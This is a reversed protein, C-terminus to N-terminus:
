QQLCEGSRGFRISRCECYEAGVARERVHRPLHPLLMRPVQDMLSRPAPGGSSEFRTWYSVFQERQEFAEKQFRWFASAASTETEVALGSALGSLLAPPLIDHFARGAWQDDVQNASSALRELPPAAARVHPALAAHLPFIGQVCTVAQCALGYLRLALETEGAIARGAAELKYVNERGRPSGLQQSVRNDYWSQSEQSALESLSDFLGGDQLRLLVWTPWNCRCLSAVGVTQAFSPVSWWPTSRGNSSRGCCKM